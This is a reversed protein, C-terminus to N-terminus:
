ARSLKLENPTHRTRLRNSDNRNRNEGAAVLIRGERRGRGLCLRQTPEIVGINCGVERLADLVLM